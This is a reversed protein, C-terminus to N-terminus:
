LLGPHRSCGSHYRDASPIERFFVAARTGGKLPFSAFHSLAAYLDNPCFRIGGEFNGGLEAVFSETDDVMDLQFASRNGTCSVQVAVTLVPQLEGDRM